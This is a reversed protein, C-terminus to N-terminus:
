REIAKVQLYIQEPASTFYKLLAPCLWGEMDYEGWHYVNGDEEERVWELKAQHGPFSKASFLMVFGKKAGPIDQTIVDIMTDAGAVFPERYLGVSEDDFVWQGWHKYPRIMHIANGSVTPLQNAAERIKPVMTGFLTKMDIM